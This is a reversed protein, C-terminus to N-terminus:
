CSHNDRRMSKKEPIITLGIFYIVCFLVNTNFFIHQLQFIAPVVIIMIIVIIIKAIFDM